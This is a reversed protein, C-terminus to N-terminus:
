AALSWKRGAMDYAEGNEDILLLLQRHSNGARVLWENNVQGIASFQHNVANGRATVPATLVNHAQRSVSGTCTGITLDSALRSNDSSKSEIIVHRFHKAVREILLDLSQLARGAIRRISTM